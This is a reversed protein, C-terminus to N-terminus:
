IVTSGGLGFRTMLEDDSLRYIILDDIVGGQENLLFGYKCKGVPVKEIPFSIAKEIGSEAVSGKFRFEGMHCTDFISVEGRCHETEAIIGDYQIPMDWGGFSVMKAKLEVHSQHLPTKKDESM